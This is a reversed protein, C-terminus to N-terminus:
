RDIVVILLFSIDVMEASSDGRRAVGLSGVANGWSMTSDPDHCLGSYGDSALLHWQDTPMFYAKNPTNWSWPTRLDCFSWRYFVAGVQIMSQLDKLSKLSLTRLDQWSQGVLCKRIIDSFTNYFDKGMIEKIRWSMKPVNMKREEKWKGEREKEKKKRVPSKVWLCKVM